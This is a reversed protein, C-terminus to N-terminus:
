LNSKKKALWEDGSILKTRPDCWKDSDEVFLDKSRMNSQLNDLVCLTYGARDISSDDKNVVLHGWNQSTIGKPASNISTKKKGEISHLFKIADHVNQGSQTSQFNISQFISPLFRRVKAYQDLMEEYYKNHSKRTLSKVTTIAETIKQKTVAKYICKPLDRKSENDLFLQAFEALESASKDLDGLTRLRNQEGIKKSSSIIESILM